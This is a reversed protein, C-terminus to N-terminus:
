SILEGQEVRFMMADDWADPSIMSKDVSSIFLQHPFTQLLELIQQRHKGDLEAGLDDLALIGPNALYRNLMRHRAIILLMTILKLQGRSAYQAALKGNLLIQLNARHMGYQSSGRQVERSQQQYFFKLLSSRAENFKAPFGFQMRIELKHQPWVYTILDLLEQNLQELTQLRKDLIPWQADVFQKTWYPLSQQLHSNQLCANRQQLITQYKKWYQHFDDYRYFAFWDIFARREAPSGLILSLSEPYIVSYPIHRSLEAQRLVKKQRIRIHTYEKAKEIGVPYRDDETDIIASVRLFPKKYQVLEDIRRSRFSRGTSLIHIAELISTKGSANDGYIFNLGPSFTFDANTILRVNEIHLHQLNM